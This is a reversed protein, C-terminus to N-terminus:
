THFAESYLHTKLSSKFLELSPLCRISIPLNNWLKPAAVTFCRDGARVMNSRPVTLLFQDASRMDARNPCYESLIACIYQPAINHIAKYVLLLIKYMIRYKVPLWHLEYLVPTIHDRKRTLSVTRAAQNQVAQLKTLLNAPIGYLLSNCYDLRSTVFAHVVSVSADKTLFKRIQSINKLHFYASKCVHNVHGEMTLNSDFVAGLNRVNKSPSINLSGVNVSKINIHEMENPRGIFMFETKDSNLKLKNAYMWDQVMNVCKYMKEHADIENKYSTPYFSLYLQTDDAYLHYSIDFENIIDSLPATYLSFLLPGLVSGQPVGCSLTAQNSKTKNVLVCQKRFNLYSMLWSLATGTIGFRNELRSLLIDLDVTDFAASLDLLVLM